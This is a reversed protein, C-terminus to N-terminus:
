TRFAARRADDRGGYPSAVLLFRQRPEIRPVLRDMARPRDDGAFRASGGPELPGSLAFVWAWEVLSAAGACPEPEGGDSIIIGMPM